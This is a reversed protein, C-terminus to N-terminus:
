ATGLFPDTRGAFGGLFLRYIHETLREVPVNTEPLYWAYIWNMMGLLASTAINLPVADGSGTSRRIDRLTETCVNSYRLRLAAIKTRFDGELADYEHNLVRMAPRHRATFEIHNRILSRLRAEPERVGVLRQELESLLLRLSREQIMFLLEDKSSFYYYLGSLSVDAQRALDRISAHHYGKAAFIEAAVDLLNALKEDHGTTTSLTNGAM